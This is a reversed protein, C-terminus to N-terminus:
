ATMYSFPYSSFISQLLLDTAKMNTGFCLHVELNTLFTIILLPAGRTGFARARPAENILSKKLGM